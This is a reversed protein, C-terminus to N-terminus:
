RTVGCARLIGQLVCSGQEYGRCGRFAQQQIKVNPGKEVAHGM